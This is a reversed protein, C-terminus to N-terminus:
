DDNHDEYKTKGSLYARTWEPQTAKGDKLMQRWKADTLRDDMPHKFEYYSLVPGAGVVLRGDPQKYVFVGLDVYGTGEELVKKSNLDTHVDAILTTKMSGDRELEIQDHLDKIRAEDRARYAKDLEAELAKIRKVNPAVVAAQLHSGFERIFDYDTDKLEENALEKESIALLRELLKEFADLRKQAAADLVKMDGLGRNTMRSLTLLRAYFEPIPEVYGQVPKPQRPIGGSKLPTYSQKAYLITDHRLQAWSALATNLSKTRYAETTMFTQYGAGHENLLPKLAHLWSWYLNRNWDRESLAGYEKQLAAIGEDYSLSEGKGDPLRGHKYADDGLDRTIARARKSGLVTMVDLGRPFGRVPGFPTDVRTFMEDRTPDGITPFVMQGLMHSDPVFRQGMFRWGASKHLMKAMTEPGAKPDFTGQGGTGGYIKPPAYRALEAKLEIMKKENSLTSVDLAAGCVKKLAARYHQPGLDDALGVYFSTVAYIREWVARTKRGDPLEATDLLRTLEAAALTQQNSEAVSVLAPQDNPGYVADGKLLFAMRGLWMLGMFYKKLEPSRTYHGRPVYQSFDEAYRFLPWQQHAVDPQPWFGEHKKMKELVLDVDKQDVQKPLTAEPKLCKVAIALYTLEKKRAEKFDEGEAPLPAAALRNLLTESLAVIDPYFEREEVDKLTEDFQVHYLHLLTDATIFIPVERKKLDKYPAVIDETALGPLVIFGNAKLSAEDAGLGLLKAVETYNAVKDLAVPLDYSPIRPDTKVKVPQYHQSFREALNEVPEMAGARKEPLAYVAILGAGLGTVTIALIFAMAMRLKSVFMTEVLGEALTIASLSFGAATASGAAYRLAADVTTTMLTAPVAASGANEALMSAIAVASLALGRQTLRQRLMERARALRGQVTGMPWCLQQAAEENTKGEFYCLVMPARYKEPLRNVEEDLVPRVDQWCEPESAQVPSMDEVQREQERRRNVGSRARLAAHFAVRYLWSSVSDRRGITAAKRVLVLFTAQFADDAEHGDKLVRKCVALVMPGHRRVLETFAAGDRQGVFRELLDGDSEEAPPPGGLLQRLHRFASSLQGNAM